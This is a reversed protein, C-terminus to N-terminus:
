KEGQYSYFDYGLKELGEKTKCYSYNANKYRSDMILNDFLYYIKYDEDIGNMEGKPINKVYVNYNEIKQSHNDGYYFNLSNNNIDNKYLNNILNEGIAIIGPLAYKACRFFRDVDYGIPDFRHAVGEKGNKIIYNGVNFRSIFEKYKEDYDTKDIEKGYDHGVYFNEYNKKYFDLKIDSLDINNDLYDIYVKFVIDPFYLSDKYHIVGDKEYKDFGINLDLRGFLKNLLSKLIIIVKNNFRIKNKIDEQEIYISFWVEDGINKIVFLDKDWIIGENKLSSFVGIEIGNILEIYKKYCECLKEPNNKYKNTMVSKIKTSECIDLSVSIFSM